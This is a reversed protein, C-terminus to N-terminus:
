PLPVPVGAVLLTFSLLFTVQRTLSLVNFSASAGGSGNHFVQATGNNKLIIGSATGSDLVRLNVDSNPTIGVSYSVWDGSTNNAATWDFDIKMGAGTTITSGGTGSAWDWRNGTHASDGFRMRGDNGSGTKFMNLANGSINLQVGGSQGVVNDALLGTHRGTQTSGDLDHNACNFNDSWIVTQAHAALGTLGLLIAFAGTVFARALKTKFHSHIIQHNM